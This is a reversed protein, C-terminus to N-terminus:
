ESDHFGVLKHFAGRNHVGFKRYIGRAHWAVTARTVGLKKGVQVFSLGQYLYGVVGMESRTLMWPERATVLVTPRM